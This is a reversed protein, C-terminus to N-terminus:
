IPVQITIVLQGTPVPMKVSATDPPGFSSVPTLLITQESDMWEVSMTQLIHLTGECDLFFSMIVVM